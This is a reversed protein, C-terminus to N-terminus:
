PQDASTKASSFDQYGSLIMLEPRYEFHVQDFFFWKGGWIFGYKEFAQIVPNPPFYRDKYPIAWWEPYFPKSWRWYIQKNSYERLTLDIAIGYSHLSRNASGSITRWVFGDARFLRTIWARVVQNRKATNLIEKEVQKLPDIIEHHVRVEKGLFVISEISANASQINEIGWLANMLAPHRLDKKAERQEIAANVRSKAESDLKRLPPMTRPYFYFSYPVYKMGSERESEPLIRGGAWYYIKEAITITWDGNKFIVDSVKDPYAKLLASFVREANEGFVPRTLACVGLLYALLLRKCFLM